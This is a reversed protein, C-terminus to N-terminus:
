DRPRRKSIDPYVHSAAAIRVTQPLYPARVRTEVRAVYGGGRGVNEPCGIVRDVLIQTPVALARRLQHVAKRHRVPIVRDLQVKHLFVATGKAHPQPYEVHFHFVQQDQVIQINIGLRAGVGRQHFGHRYRYRIALDIDFQQM